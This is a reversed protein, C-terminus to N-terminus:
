ENGIEREGIQKPKPICQLLFNCRHFTITFDMDELVELLQKRNEQAEGPSKANEKEIFESLAIRLISIDVDTIQWQYNLEHRDMM